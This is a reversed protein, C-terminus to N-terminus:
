DVVPVTDLHPLHHTYSTLPQTGAEGAHKGIIFTRSKPIGVQEYASIDTTANGYAYVIELGVQEQLYALYRAKYSVTAASGKVFDAESENLHLVGAAFGRSSLWSRTMATLVDPRASLFILQYGKRAYAAVVTDADAYMKPDYSDGDTLMEDVLDKLLEGDSTTLTGDIDFVVAKKGKPVVFLSFSETMSLDGAVVMKVHYRGVGPSLDAPVQFFARGGDDHIGFITGYQDDKSTNVTGLQEFPDCFDGRMFVRVREDKLDKDFPGYAFKGILVPQQETNAIADTGRHRPSGAAVVLRSIFGHKWSERKGPNLGFFDCWFGDGKGPATATAPTSGASTPPSPAEGPSECALALWAALAVVFLKRSLKSRESGNQM